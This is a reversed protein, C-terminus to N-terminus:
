PYGLKVGVFEGYGLHSAVEQCTQGLQNLTCSNFNILAEAIVPLNYNVDKSVQTTSIVTLSIKTLV